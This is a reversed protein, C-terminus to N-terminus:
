RITFQFTAGHPANATAWLRGGHAEIISRCISLGMGMGGAKTTFFANFLRDADKASIGVGCDTVSVLVQQTGDERSQIVLQRPRDTVSLMAEVGNMVLNIIVQQLQVRDGLISPLASALEMRLSVHHSTLERRVLVLAERIIDNVDLPAKEIDTKKALARVRLIVESARNGEKIIWDVAQRAEDLNPTDGDLWRQCAGAANVVAGLPQNVEHAISATLEGLTTVRMVRALEAQADRLRESAQMQDTIDRALVLASEARGAELQLPSYTAAWYRRGSPSEIWENFSVVEGAFCRDLHPKALREFEERGIVEGVPVGIIKEIPIGWFREHAPNVRRYRYDRDVISAVDPITDFVHETLSEARKRDTVDECVILLVPQKKILMGRATERVWIMTGDKRWKRAEWSMSQGLRELCISTYRQVAPRDTEYFVDLVSRGVLEEVSYGLQAAGFPNVSLVVNEANVMFYMTPNHEFVARWQEESDRLAEEARTREEIDSATCLWRLVTGREDRLPMMRLAFWRYEGTHSRIRGERNFPKGAAFATRWEEVERDEPHLADMWGLGHLQESSSGTYDRFRQNCFDASGDSSTNWVLAPLGDLVDSLEDKGARVRAVLCAITLSTILFATVTIIDEPYDIRFSFIPPAFFFSLCGVAVFSLAILSAFGGSLSLLVILILYAFATSIVRFDLWFCLATLLTLGALGVLFRVAEHSASRTMGM